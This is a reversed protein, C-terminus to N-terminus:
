KLVDKPTVRGLRRLGLILFTVAIGYLRSTNIHKRISWDVTLKHAGEIRGGTYGCIVRSDPPLVLAPAKGDASSFVDAHHRRM